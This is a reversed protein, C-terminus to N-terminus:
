AALPTVPAGIRFAARWSPPLPVLVDREVWVLGKSRETTEYSWAAVQTTTDKDHMVNCASFVRTLDSGEAGNRTLWRELHPLAALRDRKANNCAIHAVVFNHGLDRQYRVWPIFHDVQGEGRMPRSCFFCRDRQVEILQKRLPVLVSRDSGFLFAALDGGQGVIDQNHPLQQVFRLWAFQVLAQVVPFLTAFCSAVGPNLQVGDGILRNPYFCELRQAGVRQLRWLPMKDLLKRTSALLARWEASQRAESLKGFRERLAAIRNIMAAQRGNNQILVGRGRFPAVQRWYIEVFRAALDDLAILLTGDAAPKREVSLDALARILAYKYTAVFSGENLIRQLNALFEVQTAASANM